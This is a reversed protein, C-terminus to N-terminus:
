DTKSVEIRARHKEVDNPNESVTNNKAISEVASAIRLLIELIDIEFESM